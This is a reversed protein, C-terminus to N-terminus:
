IGQSTGQNCVIYNVQFSITLFSQGNRRLVCSSVADFRADVDISSRINVAIACLPYVTVIDRVFLFM